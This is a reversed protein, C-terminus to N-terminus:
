DCGPDVLYVFIGSFRTAVYLFVDDTWLDTVITGDLDPAMLRKGPISPDAIGTYIAGVSDDAVYFRGCSDATLSHAGHLEDGAFLGTTMAVCYVVSTFGGVYLVPVGIDPAAAPAAVPVAFAAMTIIPQAALMTPLALAADSRLLDRM